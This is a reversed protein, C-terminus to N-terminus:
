GSTLKDHHYKRQIPDQAFPGPITCGARGYPWLGAAALGAAFGDAPRRNKLSRKATPYADYVAANFQRLFEIAALNEHGGYRQGVRGRGDALISTLMSAVADVRLGDVYEILCFLANSILFSRV